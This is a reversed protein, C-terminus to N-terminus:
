HFVCTDPNWGLRERTDELPEVLHIAGSRLSPGTQSQGDGLVDDLSVATPDPGFAYLTFTGSEM